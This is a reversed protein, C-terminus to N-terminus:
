KACTFVDFVFKELKVGTIETPKDLRKGDKGMSPIKKKAIHYILKHEHNRSLSIRYVDKENERTKKV